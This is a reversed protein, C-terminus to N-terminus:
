EGSARKREGGGITAAVKNGSASATEHEAETTPMSTAEDGRVPPCLRRTLLIGLALGVVLFVLNDPVSHISTM